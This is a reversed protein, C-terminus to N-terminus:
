PYHQVLVTRMQLAETKSIGDNTLSKMIEDCIFDHKKSWKAPVEVILKRQKGPGAELCGTVYTRKPNQANTKRVTYWPGDAKGTSAKGKELPKSAKGKALAKSAKGKALPKSSKGKALAKPKTKMAVPLSGEGKELAGAELSAPRKCPKAGAFGMAQRLSGADRNATLGGERRPMFSRSPEEQAPEKPPTAFMKPLGNSDLSINDEECTAEAKKLARGKELPDKEEELQAMNVAEQLALMQSGTLKMGCIRMQDQDKKLGRLHSLLCTLREAKLNSWTAGNFRTKNCHPMQGALLVLAQRLPSPAITATPAIALLGKVLPLNRCLGTPSVAGAKNLLEYPGLDGILEEHGLVQLLLSPDTYPKAM